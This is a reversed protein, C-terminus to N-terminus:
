GDDRRLGPDGPPLDRYGLGVDVEFRFRLRKMLEAKVGSPFDLKGGSARPQNRWADGGLSQWIALLAFVAPEGGTM